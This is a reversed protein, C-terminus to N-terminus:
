AAKTVGQSEIWATLSGKPHAGVQTGKLEGEAFFLLTPISRVGYRMGLEPNEDMNVKAITLGGAFEESLEDLVPAVQKCPGCWPAWFDVLVPKGANLVEADFNDDTIEVTAM